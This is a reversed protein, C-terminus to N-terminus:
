PLCGPLGNLEAPARQDALFQPLGGLSALSPCRPPAPCSSRALTPDMCGKSSTAEREARPGGPMAEGTGGERGPEQGPGPALAASPGPTGLCYRIHQPSARRTHRALSSSHEPARGARGARRAETQGEQVGEMRCRRRSRLNETELRCWQASPEAVVEWSFGM